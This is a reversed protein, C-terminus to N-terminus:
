LFVGGGLFRSYARAYPGTTTRPPHANRILSTSRYPTVHPPTFRACNLVYHVGDGLHTELQLPAESM